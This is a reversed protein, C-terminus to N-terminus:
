MELLVFFQNRQAVTHWTLLFSDCLLIAAGSGLMCTMYSCFFMFLRWFALQGVFPLEQKDLVM